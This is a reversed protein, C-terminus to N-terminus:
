RLPIGEMLYFLSLTSYVHSSSVSKHQNYLNLCDYSADRGEPHLRNGPSNLLHAQLHDHISRLNMMFHNQIELSRLINTKFRERM